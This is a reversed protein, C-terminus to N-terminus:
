NSRYEAGTQPLLALIRSQAERVLFAGDPIEQLLANNSVQRRCFRSKGFPIGSGNTKTQRKREHLLGWKVVDDCDQGLRIPEPAQNGAVWIPTHAPQTAFIEELGELLGAM